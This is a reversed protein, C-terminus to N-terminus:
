QSQSLSSGLTQESQSPISGLTQQSERSGLTGQVSPIEKVSFVTKFKDM